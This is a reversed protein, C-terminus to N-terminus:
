RDADPLNMEAHARPLKDPSVNLAPHLPASATLSAKPSTPAPNSTSPLAPAPLQATTGQIETNSGAMVVVVVAFWDHM